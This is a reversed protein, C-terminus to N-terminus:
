FNNQFELKIEWKERSYRSRVQTIRSLDLDYFIQGHFKIIGGITM